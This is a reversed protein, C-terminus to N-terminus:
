SNFGGWVVSLGSLVNHFISAHAVDCIGHAVYSMLNGWTENVSSIVPEHTIHKRMDWQCWVHSMWTHHEENMHSLNGWTENADSMVQEHIIDIVHILWTMLCSYTMDYSMFLDHTIHKRMDWECLVHSMWTHHTEEHRMLKLCSENMHSTNGRTENVQSM